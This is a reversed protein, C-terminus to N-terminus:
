KSTFDEDTHFNQVMYINRGPIRSSVEKVMKPVDKDFVDFLISIHSDWPLRHLIKRVKTAHHRAYKKEINKDVSRPEGDRVGKMMQDWLLDLSMYKFSSFGMRRYFGYSEITSDLELARKGISSSYTFRVCEQMLENGCGKTACMLNIKVSTKKISLFAFGQMNCMYILYEFKHRLLIDDVFLQDVKQCMDRIHKGDSIIHIIGPKNSKFSLINMTAGPITTNININPFSSYNIGDDGNGM